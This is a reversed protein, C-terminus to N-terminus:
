CSGQGTSASAARNAVFGCGCRNQHKVTV